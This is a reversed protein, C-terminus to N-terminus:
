GVVKSPPGVGQSDWIRRSRCHGPHQILMLETIETERLSVNLGFHEIRTEVSSVLLGVQLVQYDVPSHVVEGPVLVAYWIVELMNLLNIIQSCEFRCIHLHLLTSYPCVM